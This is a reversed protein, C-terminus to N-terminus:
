IRLDGSACIDWIKCYLIEEFTVLDSSWNALSLNGLDQLLSEFVFEGTRREL